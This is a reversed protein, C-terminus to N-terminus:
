DSQDCKFIAELFFKSLTNGQNGTLSEYLIYANQSPTQKINSLLEIFNAGPTFYVLNIKETNIIKLNNASSNILIIFDLNQKM